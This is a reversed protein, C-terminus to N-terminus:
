IPVAMAEFAGECNVLNVRKQVIRFGDPGRRLRHIQRGAFIRQNDDRYEVMIVTSSVIYEGDTGDGAADGETAGAGVTTAGAAAGDGGAAARDIMINGILHATRSPPTQVHIRPHELREIRTKMLDRDDYFLSVQDFPSEQDISAPVWYTGDETFLAMWERFRREDLLRAEDFLFAEFAPRDIASAPSAAGAGAGAAAETGDGAVGDGDM